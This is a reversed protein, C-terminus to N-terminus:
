ILYLFLTLWFFLGLLFIIAPPLNIEDQQAPGTLQRILLLAFIAILLLSTTTPEISSLPPTDLM